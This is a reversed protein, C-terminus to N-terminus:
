INNVITKNKMIKMQNLSKKSCMAYVNVHISLM